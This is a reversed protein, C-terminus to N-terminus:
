IVFDGDGSGLAIPIKRTAGLGFLTLFVLYLGSVKCFLFIFRIKASLNRLFKGFYKATVFLLRLKAGRFTFLSYHAHGSGPSLVRIIYLSLYFMGM